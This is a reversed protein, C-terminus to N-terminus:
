FGQIKISGPTSTADIAGSSTAFRNNAETIPGEQGSGGSWDTQIFVLNIHRTLYQVRNISSGTSGGGEWDITVTIKQASPDDAVGSSGPGSACSTTANATINGAGCSDRNVNEISFYRNFTRGEAITSTAGSVLIYSNGSPSLYFQSDPGKDSPPSYILHWNSECLAQLNDLYEQALFNAIQITRTELNSRLFPTIAMIMAGLLIAGITVAVVVEVLSQGRNDQFKFSLVQFM